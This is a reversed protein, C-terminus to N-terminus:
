GRAPGQGVVVADGARLERAAPHVAVYGGASVGPDVRVTTPSAGPRLETVYSTGDPSAWVAALPVVLAKRTSGATRISVRVEQDLLDAPIPKPTTIRVLYPTGPGAESGPETSPGDGGGGGAEGEAPTAASGDTGGASAATFVEAVRGSFKRDLLEAVMQAPVGARVLRREDADLGAEVVLRGSALELLPGEPRSGVSAAVSTVQAPLRDLFVLEAYPVVVETRPPVQAAAGAATGDAGGGTPAGEGAPPGADVPATRPEYGMARYFRRVAAATGSSFRGAPDHTRFGLRALAAQLQAVDRGRLGPRLDRYAPVGGQLLFVPRGSVEVLLSGETVVSGPRTPVGTVVLRSGEPASEVTVAVKGRAKVTGRVVLSDALARYEVPATILSPPPPAAEAAAQARSKVRTGMWWSLASCAVVVLLGFALARSSRRM